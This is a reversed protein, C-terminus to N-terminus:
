ISSQLIESIVKIQSSGGIGYERVVRKFFDFLIKWEAQCTFSSMKQLRKPVPERVTIIVNTNLGLVHENRHLIWQLHPM